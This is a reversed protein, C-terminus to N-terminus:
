PHQIGIAADAVKVDGFFRRHIYIKEGLAKNKNWVIGTPPGIQTARLLIREIAKYKTFRWRSTRFVIVRRDTVVVARNVDKILFILYSLQALFPSAAQGPFVAQVPEGPELHPQAEAKLKDRLAMPIEETEAQSIPELWREELRM